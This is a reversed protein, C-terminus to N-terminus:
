THTRHSILTGRTLPIRRRRLLSRPIGRSTGGRFGIFLMEQQCQHVASHLIHTQFLINAIFRDHPNKITMSWSFSIPVLQRLNLHSSYIFYRQFFAVSIKDRNDCPTKVIRRDNKADEWIAFLGGDLRQESTYRLLKALRDLDYTGVHLIPTYLCRFLDKAGTHFDHHISQM